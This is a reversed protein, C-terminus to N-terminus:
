VTKESILVKLCYTHLRSHVLIYKRTHETGPAAYVTMGVEIGREKVHEESNFRVCYFPQKTRGFIEFIHGLAKRGEDMFLVTSLDLAPKNEFSEVTVLAM